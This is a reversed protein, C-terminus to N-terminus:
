IAAEGHTNSSLEPTTEWPLVAGRVLDCRVENAQQVEEHRVREKQCFKPPSRRGFKLSIYLGKSVKPTRFCFPRQILRSHIYANNHSKPHSVGSVRRNGLSGGTDRENLGEFKWCDGVYIFHTCTGVYLVFCVCSLACRIIGAYSLYSTAKFRGKHFDIPNVLQDTFLVDQVTRGNTYVLVISAV